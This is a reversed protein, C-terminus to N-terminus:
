PKPEMYIKGDKVRINRNHPLVYKAELWHFFEAKVANAQADISKIKAILLRGEAKLKEIDAEYKKYPLADEPQMTGVQPWTKPDSVDFEIIDASELLAKVELMERADM